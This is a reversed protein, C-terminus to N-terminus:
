AEIDRFIMALQPPLSLDPSPNQNLFSVISDSRLAPHFGMTELIKLPLQLAAGPVPVLRPARKHRHALLDVLRAFRVRKPAAASVVGRVPPAAQACRVVLDTLDEIRVLYIDHYLGGIIPVVPLKAVLRDISGLLGGLPDGYVTSPRISVGGLRAVESEIKLKNQGYISRCGEFAAKSSIFILKEVGDAKAREFLRRSGDVNVLQSKKGRPYFDYACHVLVDTGSLAGPALDGALEFPIQSV